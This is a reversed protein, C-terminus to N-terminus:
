SAAVEPVGFSTRLAICFVGEEGGGENRRSLMSVVATRKSNHCLIVEARSKSRAVAKEREKRRNSAEV